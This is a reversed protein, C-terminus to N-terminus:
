SSAPGWAARIAAARGTTEGHLLGIVVEGRELLTTQFRHSQKRDELLSVPVHHSAMSERLKPNTNLLATLYDHPERASIKLNTAKPMLVRNLVSDRISEIEGADIDQKAASKSLFGKPFYHHDQLEQVGLQGTSIPGNNTWDRLGGSTYHVLNLVGRYIASGSRSYSLLEEADEVALRFRTFYTSELREGRAVKQMAQADQLTVENSATAYRQSFVSAWYWWHVFEQQAQTMSGQTKGDLEHFLAMLPVIMNEYPLWRIAVMLRQGHLYELVRLYLRTADKWHTNFDVATLEKLVTAKDIKSVRGSLVAVARVLLERNVPVGPHAEAFDEFAQRLNFQGFVKAALIDTFNLQIGRSNSREFFTTFKEVSMDLLYYSLLQPQEFMTKFKSLVKLFVSFAEDAEPTDQGLAQGRATTGFFKEVDKERPLATTYDFAYHLPVSIHEASDDGVIEDLLEELTMATAAAETLVDARVRFYVVDIGRLARYLSTARQQGDLVIKLNHVASAAKIQEDSFSKREIKERSGKGKRPRKDIYRLTMGFSPKGYIISGVFISKILSDFLDYTQQMEWVFDRQFEPLMVAPQGVQEIQEVLQKLSESKATDASM